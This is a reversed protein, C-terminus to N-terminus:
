RPDSGRAVPLRGMTRPSSPGVAPTMPAARRMLSWRNEGAYSWAPVAVVPGARGAGGRRPGARVSGFLVVAPVPGVRVPAWPVAGTRGGAAGARFVVRRHPLRGNRRARYWRAPRGGTTDADPARGAPASAARKRRACCVRRRPRWRTAPTRPVVTSSSRWDYRCRSGSGGTRFGGAEPACLVVRRRPRWGTAPTRPVVTGTRVGDARDAPASAARGPLSVCWRPRPARGAGGAGFVVGGGGSREARGSFEQGALPRRGVGASPFGCPM